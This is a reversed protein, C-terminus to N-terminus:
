ARGRQSKGPKVRCEVFNRIERTRRVPDLVEADLGHRWALDPRGPERHLAFLDAVCTEADEPGGCFGESVLRGARRRLIVALEELSFEPHYQVGWFVGGASRIEAAQVDSMSNKALVTCDPPPVAVVDLHIAPADFVQPRGALM